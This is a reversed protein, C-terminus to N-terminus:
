SDERKRKENLLYNLRIELKKLCVPHGGFMGLQHYLFEYKHNPGIGNNCYDCYAM